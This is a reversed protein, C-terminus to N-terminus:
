SASCVSRWCAASSRSSAWCRTSGARLGRLLMPKIVNDSGSVVVTATSSCVSRPVPPGQLALYVCAPMWALPSGVLPVTAAMIVATGWVVPSPVGFMLFGIGALIGQVVPVVVVAQLAGKITRDLHDFIQREQEDSFPSVRGCSPSRAPRRRAAPLVADAPVAGPRDRRPSAASCTRCCATRAARSSRSAARRAGARDAGAPLRDLEQPGPLPAAAGGLLAADRGARRAAAAEGLRPLDRDPARAPVAVDAGAGPDGGDDGARPDRVRADAAASAEALRRQAPGLLMAVCAAVAFVLIFPKFVWFALLLIVALSVLLPTLLDRRRREPM